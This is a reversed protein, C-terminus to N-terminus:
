QQNAYKNVMLEVQKALKPDRRFIKNLKNIKIVQATKINKNKDDNLINIVRKVNDSIPM